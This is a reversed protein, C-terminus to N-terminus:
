HGGSWFLLVPTGNGLIVKAQLLRRGDAGVGECNGASTAHRSSAQYLEDRKSHGTSHGRKNIRTTSEAVHRFDESPINRIVAQDVTLVSDTKPLALEGSPQKMAAVVSPGRCRVISNQPDSAIMGLFVTGKSHITQQLVILKLNSLSTVCSCCPLAVVHKSTSWSAFCHLFLQQHDDSFQRVLQQLSM